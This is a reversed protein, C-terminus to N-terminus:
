RALVHRKRQASASLAPQETPVDVLASPDFAIAFWLLLLGYLKYSMLISWIPGYYIRDFFTWQNGAALLAWGLGYLVLVSWPQSQPARELRVLWQYLPIVLIAEYHMWAAPLVILLAVIWLGFGDTAAMRRTRWYTLGTMLVLGLYTLWRVWATTIPVLAIRETYLRNIWGNFTQNEIWSTGAGSIPLVDRLYTWHVGWGLILVSLATLALGGVAFGLVGRWRRKVLAELLLFAPYLKIVTALALCFGWISWRERVLAWLALALLFLLILDVQGYRLTDYLPRLLALLVLLGVTSWSRLPRGSSRWLILASLLMLGLNIGRWLQIAPSFPIGTLPGMVLVFFPPYKYLNSLVNTQIAELDYLEKGQLFARPGRFLVKFDDAYDKVFAYSYLFGAYLLLVAALGFWVRRRSAPQLRPLALALLGLWLPWHRWHFTAAVSRYDTFKIYEFLPILAGFVVLITLALELGTLHERSWSLWVLWLWAASLLGLLPWVWPQVWMPQLAWTAAIASVTAMSIWFAGPVGSRQLILTLVVPLLALVLWISLPPWRWISRVSGLALDTVVFSIARDELGSGPQTTRLKIATTSGWAGDRPVYIWYQHLMVQDGAAPLNIQANSAVQLAVQTGDPAVDGRLRLVGPLLSTPVVITAGNQAWRFTETPNKEPTFFNKIITTDNFEGVEVRLPRPWQALVVTLVLPVLVLLGWIWRRM